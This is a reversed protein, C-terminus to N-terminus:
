GLTELPNYNYNYVREDYYKQSIVINESPDTIMTLKVQDPITTITIPKAWNNAEVYPYIYGIDPDTYTLSVLSEASKNYVNLPLYQLLLNVLRRSGGIPISLPSDVRLEEEYEFFGLNDIPVYDIPIDNGLTDQLMLLVNQSLDIKQSLPATYNAKFTDYITFNNSKLISNYLDLFYIKYGDESYEYDTGYVFEYSSGTSNTVKIYDVSSDPSNLSHTFTIPYYAYYTIKFTDGETVYPLGSIVLEGNANISSTYQSDNLLEYFNSSSKNEYISEIGIIGTQIIQGDDFMPGQITTGSNEIDTEMLVKDIRFQQSVTEETVWEDTLMNYKAFPIEIFNQQKDNGYTDQSSFSLPSIPRGKMIKYSILLYTDYNIFNIANKIWNVTLIFANDVYSIQPDKYYDIITDNKFNLGNLNSYLPQIKLEDNVYYIALEDKDIFTDDGFPSVIKLQHTTEGDLAEQYNYNYVEDEIFYQDNDRVVGELLLSDGYELEYEDEPLYIPETTLLSEQTVNVLYSPSDVFSINFIPTGLSGFTINYIGLGDPVNFKSYYYKTLYGSLSDRNTKGIWNAISFGFVDTKNSSGNNLTLPLQYIDNMLVSGLSNNWRFNLEIYDSYDMTFETDEMVEENYAYVKLDTFEIDLRKIKFETQGYLNYYGPAKFVITSNVYGNEDADISDSILNYLKLDLIGFRQYPLNIVSYNAFNQIFSGPWQ